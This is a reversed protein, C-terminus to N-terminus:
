CPFNFPTTPIEYATCGTRWHVILLLVLITFSITMLSLSAAAYVLPVKNATASTDTPHAIKDCDMFVLVEMVFAAPRPIPVCDAFSTSQRPKFGPTAGFVWFGFHMWTDLWSSPSYEPAKQAKQAIKWEEYLAVSVIPPVPPGGTKKSEKREFGLLEADTEARRDYKNM